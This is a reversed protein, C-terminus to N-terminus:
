VTIIGDNIRDTWWLPKSEIKKDWKAFSIKEGYYYNRYATVASEGKYEDPMAQVFSTQEKVSINNPMNKTCWRLVHSSGHAGGFRTTFEKLLQISHLSLWLYNDSSERVWKTCPHNVMAAKYLNTSGGQSDTSHSWRQLKRGNKAYDIYSTGDLVRHATCLMQASEVIMKPVHKDCMDAAAVLPNEDLVFINM